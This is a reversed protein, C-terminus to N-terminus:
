VKTGADRRALRARMIALAQRVTEMKADAAKVADAVAPYSM